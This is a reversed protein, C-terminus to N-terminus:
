LDSWLEVLTATTVSLIVVLLALSYVSVKDASILEVVALLTTVMIGVSIITPIILDTKNM